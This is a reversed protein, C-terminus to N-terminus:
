DRALRGLAILAMGTGYSRGITPTDQFSGDELLATRVASRKM